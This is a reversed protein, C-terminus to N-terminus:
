YTDIARRIALKCVEGIKRKETLTNGTVNAAYVIRERLEIIDTTQFSKMLLQRAVETKTDGTKFIISDIKSTYLHNFKVQATAVRNGLYIAIRRHDM